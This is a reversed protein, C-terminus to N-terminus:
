SEMNRRSLAYRVVGHESGAGALRFGNRELVRISQLLHPLTEARVETVVAHTFAWEVLRSVAESAFGTSRFQPLLSYAIEVSGSSEPRGKFGCVGMLTVPPEKELLYWTSWGWEARDRLKARTYEVAPRDYLEPPWNDPVHTELAAALADRGLLDADVIDISASVLRLRPSEIFGTGRM